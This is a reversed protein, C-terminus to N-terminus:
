RLTVKGIEVMDKADKLRLTLSQRQEDPRGYHTIVTAQVTTPGLLRQDRNGYFNAKVTYQGPMLKKLLYEEPGYGQTFDKSMAGGITTRNHSYYCTEGSPEVVHLDIDTNDTDWTLVIRLDPDLPKVLRPDFPHHMIQNMGPVANARAIIRNAETLAIVEIEEFRQWPNMVVKHLLDLARGRDSRARALDNHSQAADARDSLALALDRFSQPEEPRLRTIKEFLDIADDLQGLQQLRHGAIRLLRGDDLGLEPINTLIRLALDPQNSKAFLDACDLYFAPTSEYSKRQELYVTYQNAPAAASLAKLYPTDPSWPKLAVNLFGYAVSNESKADDSKAGDLRLDVSLHAADHRELLAERDLADRPTAASGGGGFLGGGGGGSAREQMQQQAAPRGAADGRGRGGNTGRNALSLDPANDFSQPRSSLDDVAAVRTGAAAPTNAAPREAPQAVTPAPAPSRVIEAPDLLGRTQGSALANAEAAERYKFDAPYKFEQNWWALRNNWMTLVRDIKAKEEQQAVSQQQEIRKMFEAYVDPRTRPPIIKHQLYQEVTELVIMSTFPTVLNFQKGLATIEKENQDLAASLDALKLQAWYRPVVNGEAANDQTLTVPVRAAIQGRRGYNLTIRASKALLKGAITMRSQVPQPLRPYLDAVEKPDAEISILSYPSDSLAAIAQDISLSQLNLYQGGSSASLRRLLTHNSTPDAAVAYVPVEVQAPTDPGLNSLGDTFLLYYSISPLARQRDALRQDATTAQFPVASLRTGGDYPLDKLYKLIETADGNKVDFRRPQDATNRFPLVEVILDGLTALHKTILEFEKAHDAHGRSLSADWAIAIRAPKAIMRDRDIADPRPLDTLVFYHEVKAFQEATKPDLNEVSVPSTTRKEVVPALAAAPLTAVVDGGFTAKDISKTAVHRAEQTEFALDPILDVKPAEKSTSEIRLSLAPSSGPWNLPLQYRLKGDQAIAEQVYQVRVTRTGNAPIPYVRTRFNNGQVQEIMGPDIGKRVETEFVVRAKEKEITCADVITGNVDLGYGSVTANEPLPFLLEGELVRGADNHFTLTMTVQSLPGAIELRVDASTLIIPHPKEAPNDPNKVLLQPAQALTVSSLLLPLIFLARMLVKRYLNRM